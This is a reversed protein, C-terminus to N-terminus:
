IQRSLIKGESFKCDSSCDFDPFTCRAGRSYKKIDNALPSNAEELAKKYKLLTDRTQMM